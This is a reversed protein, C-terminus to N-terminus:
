IKGLALENALLVICVFRWRFPEGHNGPGILGVLRPPVTKKLVSSRLPTRAELATQPLLTLKLLLQLLFITM